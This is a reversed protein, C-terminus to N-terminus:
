VPKPRYGGVDTTPLRDIVRGGDDTVFSEGSTAGGTPSIILGGEATPEITVGDGGSSCGELKSPNNTFDLIEDGLNEFESTIFQAGDFKLQHVGDAEWNFDPAQNPCHADVGVTCGTKKIQITFAWDGSARTAEVQFGDGDNATDPDITPMSNVKHPAQGPSNADRDSMYATACEWPTAGNVAPSGTTYWVGSRWIDESPNYDANEGNWEDIAPPFFDGDIIINAENGGLDSCDFLGEITDIEDGIQLGDDILDQLDISDSFENFIENITDGVSIGLDELADALSDSFGGVGDADAAQNGDSISGDPNQYATFRNQSISGYGDLEGGNLLDEIAKKLEDTRAIRQISKIIDTM